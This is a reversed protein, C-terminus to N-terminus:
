LKVIRGNPRRYHTFKTGDDFFFLLARLHEIALRRTRYAYGCADLYDLADSCVYFGGVDEFIRAVKDPNIRKKM